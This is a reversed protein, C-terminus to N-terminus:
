PGGLRPYEGLLRTRCSGCHPCRPLKADPDLVENLTQDTLEMLQSLVESLSTVKLPSAPDAPTALILLVWARHSQDRKSPHWLGYYRVKHFGRPLVHQLFRRLFEVGLLRETRWADATRDKWRFTVHTQDMDLIRANTIATRFVYRSLYTLVADNGQGYHKCFSVWERRWVDASVKAFLAPAEAELAARFQAAVKRSLASVPVLFEGRAPEWHQGDATIGGGTLLLHVHPHYDLRGNWTHLVALMGPLAGLHRKKACLDKVAAASVQMLLGYMLKQNRRFAARLEKPVTVVAHFYDCPLLEAQRAQLWEQTQSAHCKPCARNRCCHYSWFTDDCDDCGYLRGGLEKTCCAAIDSLAKKHSPMMEEGHQAAYQPGFYRVVDALEINGKPPCVRPDVM